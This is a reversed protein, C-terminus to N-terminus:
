GTTNVLNQSNTLIIAAQPM